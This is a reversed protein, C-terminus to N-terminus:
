NIHHEIKFCPSEFRSPAPATSFSGEVGSEKEYLRTSKVTLAYDVLDSLNVMKLRLLKTVLLCILHFAYNQARTKLVRLHRFCGYMMLWPFSISNLPQSIYQMFM